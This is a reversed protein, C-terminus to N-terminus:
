RQFRVIYTTSAAVDDSEIQDGAFSLDEPYIALLGRRNAVTADTVIKMNGSILRWVNPVELNWGAYVRYSDVGTMVKVMTVVPAKGKDIIAALNDTFEAM